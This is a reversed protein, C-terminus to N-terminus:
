AFKILFTVYVNTPRSEKGGAEGITLATDFGDLAKLGDGNDSAVPPNGADGQAAGRTIFAHHHPNPALSHSHHGLQDDQFTGILDAIPVSNPAPRRM